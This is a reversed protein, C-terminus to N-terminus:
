TPHGLVIEPVICRNPRAPWLGPRTLTIYRNGLVAASLTDQPIVASSALRPPTSYALGGIPQRSMKAWCRTEM